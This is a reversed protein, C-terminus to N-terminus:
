IFSQRSTRIRQKGIKVDRWTKTDEKRREIVGDPERLTHGLRDMEM